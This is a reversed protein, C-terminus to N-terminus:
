ISALAEAARISGVEIGNWNKLVPGALAEVTAKEADGMDLFHLLLNAMVVEAARSAGDDIKLAIGYGLEPLSACYVGEAGVKVFARERLAETVKTDFRGTGAIMFPNAAVARRIRQAATKASLSMGHGSGFKAFAFALAPLRMAYTPISCGDIGMDDATHSAETMEELSARVMQQVRHDANVYGKPDEGLGCALCIFGAHKGSCNNHLASPQEGRAALGRAAAEGLPWHAGCELCGADRGAKALTSTAVAVHEPEGMHSACALAIEKDTLGLKDAVGSEILPMAQLAKVASRPFVRYEVAGLSLVSGGDADIVAIAGRHRSEVLGGRTVEVLFPNDM